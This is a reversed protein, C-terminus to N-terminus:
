DEDQEISLGPCKKKEKDLKNANMLKDFDVLGDAVKLNTESPRKNGVATSVVALPPLSSVTNSPVIEPNIIVQINIAETALPTSPSLSNQKNLKRIVLPKKSKASSPSASSSHNTNEASKPNDVTKDSVQSEETVTTPVSLIPNTNETSTPNFVTKEKTIYEDGESNLVDINETSLSSPSSPLNNSLNSQTKTKRIVLKQSSKRKPVDEMIVLVLAQILQNGITYILLAEYVFHLLVWFFKWRKKVVALFLLRYIFSVSSKLLVVFFCWAYGNYIIYVM